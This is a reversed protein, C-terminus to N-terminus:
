YLVLNFGFPIKGFNSYSVQINGDKTLYLIRVKLIIRLNM